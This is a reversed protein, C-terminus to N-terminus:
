GRPCRTPDGQWGSLAGLTTWTVMEANRGGPLFPPRPISVLGKKAKEQGHPEPKEAMRPRKQPYLAQPAWLAGKLLEWPFPIILGVERTGNLRDWMQREVQRDGMRPGRRSVEPRFLHLKGKREQIKWTKLSRPRDYPFPIKAMHHHFSSSRLGGPTNETQLYQPLESSPVPWSSIQLKLTEFCGDTICEHIKHLWILFINLFRKTINIISTGSFSTQSYSLFYKKSVALPDIRFQFVWMILDRKQTSVFDKREITVTFFFSYSHASLKWFFTLEIPKENM